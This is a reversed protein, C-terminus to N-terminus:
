SGAAMILATEKTDRHKSNVDAGAQLLLRVIASHGVSMSLFYKTM